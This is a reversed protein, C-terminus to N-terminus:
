RQQVSSFARHSTASIIPFMVHARGLPVNEAINLDALPTSSSSRFDTVEPTSSNRGGMAQITTRIGRMMVIVDRPTTSLPKESDLVLSKSSIWHNVQQSATNFPVLLLASALLLEKKLDDPQSMLERMQESALNYLQYGTMLVQCVVDPSPPPDKSIMDCCLCVASVALLSHFVTKSRSALTPISMQLAKQDKEYHLLTRSTHEVYHHFLDADSLVLADDITNPCCEVTASSSHISTEFSKLEGLFSVPSPELPFVNYRGFNPLPPKQSTKLAPTPPYICKHLTSECRSCQPKREDCQYSDTVADRLKRPRKGKSEAAQVRFM